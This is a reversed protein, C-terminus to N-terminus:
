RRLRLVVLAVLYAVGAFAGLASNPLGDYPLGDQGRALEVVFGVLVAVILAGGAYATAELAAMIAFMSVGLWPKGAVSAAVLYVVGIALSLALVLWFTVTRRRTTQM